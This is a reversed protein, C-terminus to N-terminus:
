LSLMYRMCPCEMCQLFTWWIVSQRPYSFTCFRSIMMSVESSGMVQSDSDRPDRSKYTIIIEDSELWFLDCVSLYLLTANLTKPKISYTQRLPIALVTTLNNFYSTMINVIQDRNSRLKWINKWNKYAESTEICLPIWLLSNIEHPM